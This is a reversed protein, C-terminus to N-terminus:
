GGLIAVAYFTIAAEVCNPLQFAVISGPGLGRARLGGAVRLARQHVEGWTGAWPRIKSHIEFPLEPHARLGGDLLEGLTDDVWLGDRLWRQEVDAPVTRYGGTEM